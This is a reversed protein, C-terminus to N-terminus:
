QIDENQTSSIWPPRKLKGLGLQTRMENVLIANAMIVAHSVSNLRSITDSINKKSSLANHIAATIRTTQGLGEFTKKPAYLYAHPLIELYRSQAPGLIKWIIKSDTKANITLRSAVEMCAKSLEENASMADEYWKIRREFGRELMFRRLTLSAGIFAGIGGVALNVCLELIDIAM